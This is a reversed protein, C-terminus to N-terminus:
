RAARAREEAHVVAAHGRVDLHGADPGDLRRPDEVAAPDGEVSGADWEGAVPALLAAVRRQAHQAVKAGVRERPVEYALRDQRRGRAVYERRPNERRRTEVLSFMMLIRRMRIAM